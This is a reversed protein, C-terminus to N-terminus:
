VAAQSFYFNENDFLLEMPQNNFQEILLINNTFADIFGCDDSGLVFLRKEAKDLNYKNIKDSSAILNEDLQTKSILPIKAITEGTAKSATALGKLLTSQISKDAKDGIKIATDAFLVKYEESYREIKSVTEKLYLSNFNELLMIQLFSAFAFVYLAIQYDKFASATDELQKKVKGDGYIFMRRSTKAFIQERYLDIKREASHLIDLVKIHNSNKYKENDWNFKFNNMVDSLFNIDGKMDSRVKQSLFNLIDQQLEKISDLKKNIQALAVAMFLMTPDCVVPKLASQGAVQNTTTNLTGGIFAEKKASYALKQGANVTVRYLGSGGGKTSIASIAELVPKFGIGLSSISGLNVATYKELNQQAIDLVPLYNIEMLRLATENNQKDM